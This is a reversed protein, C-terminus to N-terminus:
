AAEKWPVLIGNEYVAEADKSWHYMLAPAAALTVDPVFRRGERLMIETKRHAAAHAQEEIMETFIEDHPLFLPRSDYLPSDRDLYCERVVARWGAKVADSLLAQFGNNAGATFNLGGRLRDVPGLCPLVGTQDVRASVWSHYEDVEPFEEFFQKRVEQAIQVCRKCIPPTPRRNWEIVKEAGCESEGGLLICFRIGPYVRGNPATTYGESRKRRTLVLKAPGMGGGVGFLFPKAGQRANKAEPDKAALRAIMEEVTIGILKAGFTTHLMGPDGTSNIIEAMRSYGVIWLCCQALTCLEGASFDVSCFVRGPRAVICERVGSITGKGACDECIISGIKKHGMCIPCLVKRPILQILEEYSTRGSAVLVNPRFNIPREVGGKVFPLYTNRIKTSENEAFEELDDDGSEALTDRSKSVGGKDARPLSPATSLDLMTGDCGGDAAKCVITNTDFFRARHEACRAAYSADTDAKLRRPTADYTKGNSVRGKGGCRSCEGTAGYARAVARKVAVEDKTEDARVFGLAQFHGLTKIYGREIIAELAAVRAPDTRVGWVGGLWMGFLTEAQEPLDGLNRFHGHKYRQLQEVASDLTNRVDDRPYDAADAPWFKLPVHELIAYRKRWFDRAKAARSLLYDTVFALSYRGTRKGDENAIEQGTRPDLGLEGRSIADLAQAILIDYVRGEGYAAFIPPLLEPWKVAACAFDYCGFATVIVSDSFLLGELAGRLDTASYLTESNEAPSCTSGCVIPPALLGPQTLHTETDFSRLRRLLTDVCDWEGCDSAEGLAVPCRPHHPFDM